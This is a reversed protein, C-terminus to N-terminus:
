ENDKKNKTKENTNASCISVYYGYSCSNFINVFIM